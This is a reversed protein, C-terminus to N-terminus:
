KGRFRRRREFRTEKEKKGQKDEWDSGSSPEFDDDSPDDGLESDEDDSITAAANANKAAKVAKRSPRGAPEKQQQQPQKKKKKKPSENLDREGEAEAEESSSAAAEAGQAPASKDGLKKLHLQFMYLTPLLSIKDEDKLKAREGNKVPRSTKSEEDHIFCPNIHTSHLYVSGDDEIEIFAHNRSVKKDSCNLETVNRGLTTKGVRECKFSAKHGNVGQLYVAEYKISSM